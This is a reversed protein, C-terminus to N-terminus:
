FNVKIFSSRWQQEILNYEESAHLSALSQQLREVLQKDSGKSLAVYLQPTRGLDVVPVFDNLDFAMQKSLAILNNKQLVIADVRQEKLANIAEPWHRVKMVNKEPWQYRAVIEDMIYDDRAVVLTLNQMSQTTVNAQERAKLQWLFLSSKSQLMSSNPFVPGIWEFSSERKQTRRMSYILVNKETTAIHYARSWPLVLHETFIQERRLLAKVIDVAVGDLKEGSKVQYPPFHETVVMELEVASVRTAVFVVILLLFSVGTWRRWM